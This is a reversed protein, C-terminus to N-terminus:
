NESLVQEIVSMIEDLRSAGIGKVQGIENRLKDLDVTASNADKIIDVIFQQMQQRNFSKIKKYTERSITINNENEM